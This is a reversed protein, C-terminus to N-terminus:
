ENGKEKEMLVSSDVHINGVIRFRKDYGNFVHSNYRCDDGNKNQEFDPEGRRLYGRSPTYMMRKYCGKTCLYAGSDDSWTFFKEKDSCFIIDGEYIDFKKREGVAQGYAEVTEHFDLRHLIEVDERQILMAYKIIDENRLMDLTMQEVQGDKEKRYYVKWRPTGPEEERWHVYAVKCVAEYAGRAIGLAAEMAEDGIKDLQYCNLDTIYEWTKWLEKAANDSLPAKAKAYAIFREKNVYGNWNRIERVHEITQRISRSEM